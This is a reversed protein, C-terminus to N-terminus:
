SDVHKVWASPHQCTLFFTENEINSICHCIDLHGCERQKVEGRSLGIEANTVLNVFDAM